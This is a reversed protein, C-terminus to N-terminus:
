VALEICEDLIGALKIPFLCVVKHGGPDPSTYPVEVLGGHHTGAKGDACLGVPLPIHHEM